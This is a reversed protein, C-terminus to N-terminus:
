TAKDKSQDTVFLGDIQLNKITWGRVNNFMLTVDAYDEQQNTVTAGVYSVEGSETVKQYLLKEQRNLLTENMQVRPYFGMDVDSMVFANDANVTSNYFTKDMM